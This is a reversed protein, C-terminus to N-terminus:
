AQVVMRTRGSKTVHVTVQATFTNGTYYMNKFSKFNQMATRLQDQCESTNPM